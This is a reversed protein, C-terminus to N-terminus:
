IKNGCMPCFKISVGYRHVQTYGGDETLEIWTLIWGYVPDFKIISRDNDKLRAWESCTCFEEM